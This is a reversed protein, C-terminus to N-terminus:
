NYIASCSLDVIIQKYGEIIRFYLNQLDRQLNINHYDDKHTIRLWDLMIIYAVHIQTQVSTEIKSKEKNKKKPSNM